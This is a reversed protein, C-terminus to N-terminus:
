FPARRMKSTTRVINQREKSMVGHRRRHRSDERKRGYFTSIVMVFSTLKLTRAKEM